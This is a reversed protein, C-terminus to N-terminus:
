CSCASYKKAVKYLSDKYTMWLIRRCFAQTRRTFRDPGEYSTRMVFPRRLAPGIVPMLKADEKWRWASFIRLETPLEVGLNDSSIWHREDRARVGPRVEPDATACRIAQDAFPGWFYAMADRAM